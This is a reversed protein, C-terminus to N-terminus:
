KHRRHAATHHADSAQMCGDYQGPKCIPYHALPAPAPYAQDPSPAQQYTVQAGPQVPGSTPPASPQYGGVPTGGPAPATTTQAQTSPDAATSPSTTGQDTAPPTATQGPASMSDGGAPPTSGTTQAFAPMAFAAAALLILKM